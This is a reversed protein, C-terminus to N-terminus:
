EPAALPASVLRRYLAEYRSAVTPLAFEAEVRLRAARGLCTRLNTSLLRDLAAALPAVEEPPALLGSLEHEIADETGAVRTGLCALGTAMAELLANSMGETRSPLVCADLAHLFQTPEVEGLFNISNRATGVSEAIRRLSVEQPGHGTLCLVAGATPLTSAAWARILVDVGKDRHLRGLFGVLLRDLPLGLQRRAVEREAEHAPWFQDVDVGNPIYEVNAYGQEGLEREIRRSPAVIASVRGLLAAAIPGLIGGEGARLRHVDGQPGSGAIKVLVPRGARQAILVAPILEFSAMHCHLIDFAQRHRLLYISLATLYPFKALRRLGRRDPVWPLRDVTIGDVVAQPALGRFRATAIRVDLGRAALARSLTLTARGTGGGRLDFSLMQIGLPSERSGADEARPRTRHATAVALVATV